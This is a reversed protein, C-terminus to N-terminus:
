KNEKSLVKENLMIESGDEMICSYTTVDSIFCNKIRLKFGNSYVTEGLHFKPSCCMRGFDEDYKYNSCSKCSGKERMCMVAM